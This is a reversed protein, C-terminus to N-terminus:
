PRTPAAHPQRRRRRRGQDRRHASQARGRRQARGATLTELGYVLAYEHARHLPNRTQFAVVRKWGKDASVPGRRAPRCCTSASSPISPSRCCASRAAWRANQRADDELVMDAAPIIPASPPISARSTALDQGVPFRRQDELTGVMEDKSNVLAVTEGSKLTGALEATSRFASRFRGPTNRATTAPHGGRRPRPQLRGSGDPRDPASAATASVTCVPCTPM